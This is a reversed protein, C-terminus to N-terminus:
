LAPVLLPTVPDGLDNVLLPIGKHRPWLIVMVSFTGSLVSLLLGKRGM